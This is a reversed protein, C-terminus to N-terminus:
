PIDPHAIAVFARFETQDNPSAAQFEANRLFSESDPRLDM